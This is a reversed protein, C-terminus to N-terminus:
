GKKKIYLNKPISSSYVTLNAYSTFFHTNRPGSDKYLLKEPLLNQSRITSRVPM